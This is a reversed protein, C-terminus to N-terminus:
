VNWRTRATDGTCSQKDDVIKKGELVADTTTLCSGKMFITTPISNPTGNTYLTSLM